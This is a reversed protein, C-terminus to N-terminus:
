THVTLFTDVFAIDQRDLVHMTILLYMYINHVFYSNPCDM